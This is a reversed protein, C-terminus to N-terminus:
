KKKFAFSIPSGIPHYSSAEQKRKPTLSNFDKSRPLIYFKPVCCFNEFWQKENLKLNEASLSSFFENLIM